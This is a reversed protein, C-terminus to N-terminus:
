TVISGSTPSLLTPISPAVTDLTTITQFHTAFDVGSYLQTIITKNGDGSILYIGTSTNINIGTKYSFINGFLAYSSIWGANATGTM